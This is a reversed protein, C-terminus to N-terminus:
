RIAGGIGIGFRWHGHEDPFGRPWLHVDDPAIRPHVVDRERIRHAESGAVRGRVSLWRGPPFDTAEAYGPIALVFRGISPARMDPRQNRDLPYGLIQVDTTEALNAVALIKGGWVVEAGHYREPAAAVETPPPGPPPAGKFAPTACGCLAVIAFALAISVSRAM